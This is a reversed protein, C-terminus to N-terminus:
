RVNFLYNIGVTFMQVNRNGTSFVDGALALGAPVTLSYSNLGVYDYEAKATWNQTFAWEVGGGAVWGTNTNSNNFSVTTGTPVDLLTLNNSGVWAGGGKGYVLVRDFAVGLRGTLTTLWRGNNSGSIVTSGGPTIITTGNGSNNNNALWDFDGEVGFVFNNIQYNAGVQGGGLFTANNNAGGSFLGFSDNLNGQNWGAGINGGIYFGTWSFPPAVPAPPAKYVPRAPLDASMAVVPMGVLSSTLAVFCLAKRMFM